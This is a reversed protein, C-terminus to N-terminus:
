RTAFSDSLLTAHLTQTQAEDDGLARQRDIRAVVELTIPCLKATDYLTTGEEREHVVASPHVDRSLRM